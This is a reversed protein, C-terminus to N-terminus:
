KLSLFMFTENIGQHSFLLTGPRTTSLKESKEIKLEMNGTFKVELKRDEKSEVNINCFQKM